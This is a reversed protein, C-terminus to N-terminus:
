CRRRGVVITVTVGSSHGAPTGARTGVGGDAYSRSLIISRHGPSRLWARVTSAATSRRATGWALVEGITWSCGSRVYGTRRARDAPSSGGPGYHSFYRRRVMDASHRKAAIRLRRNDRLWRLGKSVRVRDIECAIAARVVAPARQYPVSRDACAEQRAQADGPLATVTTAAVAALGVTAGRRGSRRAAEQADARGAARCLALIALVILLWLGAGAALLTLM